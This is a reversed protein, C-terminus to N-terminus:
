WPRTGDVSSNHHLFLKLIYTCIHMEIKHHAELNRAMFRKEIYKSTWDLSKYYMCDRETKHHAELNRAMSRKQIYKHTMLNPGCACEFTIRYFTKQAQLFHKSTQVNPSQVDMKCVPKDFIEVFTKFDVIWEKLPTYPLVCSDKSILTNPSTLYHTNTQCTPAERKEKRVMSILSLFLKTCKLFFFCWGKLPTLRNANTCQQLNSNTQRILCGWTNHM